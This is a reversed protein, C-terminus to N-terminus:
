TLFSLAKEFRDEAQEDPPLGIRLDHESWDFRRVYIGSEALRKWMQHANATKILRFLDTGGNITLGHRQLLSDLRVRASALKPRVMMAWDTDNYARTGIELAAGSVPWSGLRHNIVSRLLAPVLAAGLRIGALGYFKGFSRLVILGDKGGSSAISLRPDLDAYAEDVILWGGRAALQERARELENPSFIRGDPNNPNCVVVADAEGARQLPAETEIVRCDAAAWVTKHDGYTPNLIVVVKPKIVNPLLRILLESGPGVVISERPARFAKAMAARCGEIMANTPLHEVAERSVSVHPYAFPNIGTSLDLWPKPADKFRQHM